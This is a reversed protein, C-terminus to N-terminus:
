VYQTAGPNAPVTYKVGSQGPCVTAPGSIAGLALGSCSTSSIDLSSAPGRCTGKRGSAYLTGGAFSATFTIRVSNTGGGSSIYSGHPLVWDYNDVGPIAPISYLVNSQGPSASVAGAIEGSSGPVTGSTGSVNIVRAPGAGCPGVVTYAVVQGSTFNSPVSVTISFSSRSVVTMGPAFFEVRGIPPVTTPNLTYTAFGGKCVTSPGSVTPPTNPCDQAALPGLGILFFAVILTIFVKMVNNKLCM